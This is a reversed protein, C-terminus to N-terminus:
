AVCTFVFTDGEERITGLGPSGFHYLMVRCGEAAAQALLRRRTQAAMVPDTDFNPSLEPHTVQFSHHMADVMHMLKEGQSEIMAGIHGPTHGLAPFARIGPAIPADPEILMIRDRLPFLCREASPNLAPGTWHDWDLRTM